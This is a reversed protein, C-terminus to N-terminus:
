IQWADILYDTVNIPSELVFPAAKGANEAQSNIPWGHGIGNVMILEIFPANSDHQMREALVGEPLAETSARKNADLIIQWQQFMQKSNEPSVIADDTGTILSIDPWKVPGKHIQQVQEALLEISYTSGIKMCSLAKVLTDACPFGVGAIIGAADFTTPHQAILSTAMAGGASLGIIFVQEINANSRVTHIMNILSATEGQDILHDAPSFWNFCLQMNNAKDQQPMLLSFGRKRAAALLGTHEALWDANQGCGHLLVVLSKGANEPTFLTASLDGPNAGFEKLEKTVNAYTISSAIFTVFMLICKIVTNM